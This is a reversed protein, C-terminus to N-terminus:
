GMKLSIGCTDWYKQELPSLIYISLFYRKNGNGISSTVLKFLTHKYTWNQWGRENSKVINSCDLSTLVAISFWFGKYGSKGSNLNHLSVTRITKIVFSKMQLNIKYFEYQILSEYTKATYLETIYSIYSSFFLSFLAMQHLHLTGTVSTFATSFSDHLIHFQKKQVKAMVEKRRKVCAWQQYGM